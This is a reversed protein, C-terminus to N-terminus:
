FSKGNERMWENAPLEDQQDASLQSCELGQEYQQGREQMQEFSPQKFEAKLRARKDAAGRKDNIEFLPVCGLAKNHPKFPNGTTGFNLKFVRRLRSMKAQNKQNNPLRNKSALGLLIAGEGNLASTNRNILGFEALAIRKSVNRASAELMNNGGIGADTKDGVFSIAIESAVLGAMARFETFPSTDFTGPEVAPTVTEPATTFEAPMVLPSATSETAAMAKLEPPIDLEVSACWAAFQSLKVAALHRGGGFHPSKFLSAGLLRVRKDFEINVTRSPFSMRTFTSDSVPGYLWTQTLKQLNDPNINLSLACAEWHKVESMHKWFQWDIASIDTM